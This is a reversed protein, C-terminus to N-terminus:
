AADRSSPTRSRVIRVAGSPFGTAAWTSFRSFGRLATRATRFCLATAAVSRTLRVEARRSAPKLVFDHDEATLVLGAPLEYTGPALLITALGHPVGRLSKVAEVPSRYPRDKAGTGGQPAAADVFVTPASLSVALILLSAFM